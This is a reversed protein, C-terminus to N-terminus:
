ELEELTTVSGTMRGAGPIDDVNVRKMAKARAEFADDAHVVFEGEITYSVHFM